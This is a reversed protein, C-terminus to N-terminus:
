SLKEIRGGTVFFHANCGGVLKVSSSGAVLSLDEITNGCLTWRGISVDDKAPVKPSWVVVEHTGIAGGKALLCKPCLFRVGDAQPVTDVHTWAIGGDRVDRRLLQADLVRLTLPLKPLNKM